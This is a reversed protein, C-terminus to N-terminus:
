QPYRGYFTDEDDEVIYGGGNELGDNPRRLDGIRDQVCLPHMRNAGQCDPGTLPDIAQGQDGSRSSGGPGGPQCAMLTLATTVLLANRM